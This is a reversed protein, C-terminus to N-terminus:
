LRRGWSALYDKFIPQTNADLSHGAGMVVKKKGNQIANEYAEIVSPKAIEDHESAVLLVYGGFGALSKLAPNEPDPPAGLADENSYVSRYMNMLQQPYLVPARLLLSKFQRYQVALTALYGGYSMGVVGIRSQDIEPREALYDGAECVNDLHDSVTLIEREGSSTGHGALDFMFCATGLATLLKGYQRFPRSESAYGHVFMAASGNPEDPLFLTSSLPREGLITDKVTRM